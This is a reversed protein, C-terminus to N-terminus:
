RDLFVWDLGARWTWKPLGYGQTTWSPELVYDDNEWSGDKKTMAYEASAFLSFTFYTLRIDARFIGVPDLNDDSSFDKLGFLGEGELRFFLSGDGDFYERTEETFALIRHEPVGYLKANARSDIYNYGYLIGFKFLTDPEYELNVQIPIKQLEDGFGSTIWSVRLTDEASTDIAFTWYFPDATKTYQASISAHLGNPNSWYFGGEAGLIESVWMSDVPHIDFIGPELDISGELSDAYPYVDWRSPPRFESITPSRDYRYGNVFFYLNEDATGKLGITPSIRAEDFIDLEARCGLMAAMSNVFPIEIQASGFYDNYAEEGFIDHDLDFSRAGASLDLDAFWIRKIKASITGADVNLVDHSPTNNYYPNGDDERIYDQHTFKLSLDAGPLRYRLKGHILRSDDDLSGPIPTSGDPMIPRIPDENGEHRFGFFRFELGGYGAWAVASYDRNKFDGEGRHNKCKLEAGSIGIGNKKGLRKIFIGSISQRSDEGWHATTKTYDYEFPKELISIDIEPSLARGGNQVGFLPSRIDFGAITEIPFFSIDSLGDHAFFLREGEFYVTPPLSLFRIHPTWGSRSVMESLEATPLSLMEAESVEIIQEFPYDVSDMSQIYDSIGPVETVSSGADFDDVQAITASSIAILLAVSFVVSSFRDSM